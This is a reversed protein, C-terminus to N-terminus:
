AEFFTAYIIRKRKRIVRHISVNHLAYSSQRLFCRSFPPTKQPLGRCGLRMGRTFPPLSNLLKALGRLLPSILAEERRSRSLGPTNSPPHAGALSNGSAAGERLARLSASPSMGRYAVSPYPLSRYGFFNKRSLWLRSPQHVNTSLQHGRYRGPHPEKVISLPARCPRSPESEVRLRAPVDCRSSRVGIFRSRARRRSCASEPALAGAQRAPANLTM